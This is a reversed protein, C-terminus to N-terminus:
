IVRVGKFGDSATGSLIIGISRQHQDRALSRFFYDIPLRHDRAVTPEVLVLTGNMLEMEYNPPIVYVCNSKIPTGDEAEFVPMRTCRGLIEVLRSDHDPALHQVLVFAMDPDKDAPM